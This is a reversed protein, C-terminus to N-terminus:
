VPAATGNCKSSDKVPSSEGELLQTNHLHHEDDDHKLHEVDEHSLFCPQNTSCLVRAWMRDTIVVKNQKETIRQLFRRLKLTWIILIHNIDPTFFQVSSFVLSQDNFFLTRSKRLVPYVRAQRQGARRHLRHVGGHRRPPRQSSAPHLLRQRIRKVQRCPDHIDPRHVQSHHPLQAEEQFSGAHHLFPLLEANQILDPCMM